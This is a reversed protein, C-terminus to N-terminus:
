WTIKWEFKLCEHCYKMVHQQCSFTPTQGISSSMWWGDYSADASFNGYHCVIGYSVLIDYKTYIGILMPM